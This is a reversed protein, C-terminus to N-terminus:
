CQTFDITHLAQVPIAMQHYKGIARRKCDLLVNISVGPVVSGKVLSHMDLMPISILLQLTHGWTGSIYSSHTQSHIFLFM